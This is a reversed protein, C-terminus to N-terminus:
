PKAQGNGSHAELKQRSAPTGSVHLEPTKQSVLAVQSAAAEVLPKQLTGRLHYVTSDGHAMALALQGNAISGNVAYAGSATRIRSEPLEFGRKALTLRGAFDSFQLTTRGLQINRFAGNHWDFDLAATASNWLEASSSGKLAIEYKGSVTGIGLPTRLLSALQAAVVNIIRGEGSYSPVDGAFAARWQGTQTGGLLDASTNTLLLGMPDLAFDTSVNSATLQGLLLRKAQVHGSAQMSRLVNTEEGSGFLKYWAHKKMRPNFLANLEQASITDAQLQFQSACLAGEDCTQPLEAEGSFSTKGLQAQLKHFRLRNGIGEVQASQVQVPSAIGPVEVRVARLQANGSV